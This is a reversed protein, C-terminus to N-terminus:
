GEQVSSWGRIDMTLGGGRGSATLKLLCGLSSSDDDQEQVLHHDHCMILFVGSLTHIRISISLYTRSSRSCVSSCGMSFVYHVRYTYLSICVCIALIHYKVVQFTPHNRNGVMGLARTTIPHISPHVSQSLTSSMSLSCLMSSMSPMSPMCSM